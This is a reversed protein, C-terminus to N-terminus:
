ATPYDGPAFIEEVSVPTDLLHQERAYRILAELSRANPEVGYPIPDEDDPVAAGAALAAVLEARGAGAARKAAAFAAYLDTALRPNDRVLEERVVIVGHIPYVGTRRYWDRELPEPTGFLSYPPEAAPRPGSDGTTWGDKPAGKRGVGANGTLAADIRGQDLLDVLSEGPAVASVNPPAVYSAVHEEDDTVWRVEAPDVGFDDSLLGRVWVGTTVSYARVGVTRGVLDGPVRIGSAAHCRIHGHHFLRKTFVPVAIVPVGAARAMLYTTPALECVDYALERVMERYARIIPKTPVFELPGGPLEVAGEALARTHPYVTFTSKLSSM